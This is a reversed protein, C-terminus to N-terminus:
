VPRVAEGVARVSLSTYELVGEAKAHLTLWPDDFSHGVHHYFEKYQEPTIESRPRTWLASATNITEEKDGDASSSRCRSITPIPAQRDQAAAHPELYEEEGERMHLSSAPAARRRPPMTRDRLEGKGDSVWRWGQSDGAKRSM